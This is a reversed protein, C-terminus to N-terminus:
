GDHLYCTIECWFGSYVSKLLSTNESLCLQFWGNLQETVEAQLKIWVQVTSESPKTELSDNVPSVPPFFDTWSKEFISFSKEMNMQYFNNQEMSQLQSHLWVQFSVNHDKKRTWLFCLLSDAWVAPQSYCHLFLRCSSSFFCCYFPAMWQSKLVFLYYVIITIFLTNM